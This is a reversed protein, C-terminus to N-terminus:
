FPNEIMMGSINQGRQMDESLLRSAGGALAAEIILGDWFSVMERQSREAARVILEADTQVVSFTSFRKVAELAEAGDLPTSLKRTM